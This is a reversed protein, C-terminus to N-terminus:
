LGTREHGDPIAIFESEFVSPDELGIKASTEPEELYNLRSTRALMGDLDKGM